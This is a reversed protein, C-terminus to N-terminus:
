QELGFQEYHVTHAAILGFANEQFIKTECASLTQTIKTFLSDPQVKLTHLAQRLPQTIRSVLQTRLTKIEELTQPFIRQSSWELEKIVEQTRRALESLYDRLLHISARKESAVYNRLDELMQDQKCFAETEANSSTMLTNHFLQALLPTPQIDPDPLPCPLPLREANEVHLDARLTKAFFDIEAQKKNKYDALIEFLLRDLSSRGETLSRLREERSQTAGM